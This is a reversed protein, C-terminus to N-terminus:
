EVPKITIYRSGIYALLITGAVFVMACMYFTEEDFLDTFAPVQSYLHEIMKVSGPDRSPFKREVM